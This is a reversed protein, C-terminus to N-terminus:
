NLFRTWYDTIGRAIAKAYIDQNFDQNLWQEEYPTSIFGLEILVAPMDTRVLVWFNSEKDVDGDSYDARIYLDPFAEEVEDMICNALEDAQTQGPSTWIEAGTANNTAAANCHISIFVDAKFENACDSIYALSDDQVVKVECGAKKLYMAVLDGVIKVVDAEHTGAPGVAGPDVEPCHGPNIFVKM